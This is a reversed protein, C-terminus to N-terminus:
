EATEDNDVEERINQIDAESVSSLDGYITGRIEGDVIGNIKGHVKGDVRIIKRPGSGVEPYKINFRTKEVIRDGLVLLQPLTFLVLFMSILTGRCMCQGM